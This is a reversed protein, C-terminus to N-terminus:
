CSVFITIGDRIYKVRPPQPMDWESQPKTPYPGLGWEHFVDPVIDIPTPMQRNIHGKHGPSWEGVSSGPISNINYIM